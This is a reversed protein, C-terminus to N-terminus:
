SIIELSTLEATDFFESEMSYVGVSGVFTTNHRLPILASSHYGFRKANLHWVEKEQATQLNNRVISKGEELAKRTQGNAESMSIVLGEPYGIRNGSCYFPNLLQEDHGVLGIWVLCFGGIEVGVRCIKELFENESLRETISIAIQYLFSLIDRYRNIKRQLLEEQKARLHSQIITEMAFSISRGIRKLLSIELEGFAYSKTAYIVLFGSIDEHKFIPIVALGRIGPLLSLDILSGFQEARTNHIDLTIVSQLKCALKINDLLTFLDIDMDITTRHAAVAIDERIESIWGVWAIPFNGVTTAIRCIEELLEKQNHIEAIMDGIQSLFAYLRNLRHITKTSRSKDTAFFILHQLEKIMSVPNGGKQLYFDAGQNLAEIVVEERGKGTFIIVPLTENHKRIAKLLEIGNMEPMQYDALIADYEQLSSRTIAEKASACIEVKIKGEYQLLARVSELLGRDDDVYLISRVPEQLQSNGIHKM